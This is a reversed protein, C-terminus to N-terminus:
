PEQGSRGPVTRDLYRMRVESGIPPAEDRFVISNRGFVYEVECDLDGQDAEGQLCTEYRFTIPQGASNEAVVEVELSWPDLVPLSSLFFESRVGMTLLGMREIFGSWDNNCINGIVGERAQAYRRYMAGEAAASPCVTLNPAVLAHAYISRGGGEMASLLQMFEPETASPVFGGTWGGDSLDDDDSVFLLHVDADERWFDGTPTVTLARYAAHRGAEGDGNAGVQVMQSFVASKNPTDAEIFRTGGVNRLRGAANDFPMTTVAVHYDLGSGALQQFFRPFNTALRNQEDYMSCSADLVVLVDARPTVIQHYTDLVVLDPQSPANPVTARDEIERIGGGNQCAVLGLTMWLLNRM